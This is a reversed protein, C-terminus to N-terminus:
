EPAVILWGHPPVVIDTVVDQPPAGSGAIIRGPRALAAHL